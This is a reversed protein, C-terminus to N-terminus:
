RDHSVIVDRLKTIELKSDFSAFLVANIPKTLAKAFGLELRLSSFNLPSRHNGDSVGDPSLNFIYLNYGKEFHEMTMGNTDDTNFYNLASMTNAYTRAYYKDDYNPTFIQGPILDGDRYLAIKNLSFHQFNYPNLGINGNFADHTVLGIVLMKPCQTMYLRDKIHSQTGSTITFTSVETHQIPYLANMKEMGVNHASIVSADVKVRRVWLVCKTFEIKIDSKGKLQQVAFATKAPLLKFTLDTQPLMYRAQRTMDLFLPGYMHWEKHDNTAASRFKFGENDANNMKGPEDENWGVVQLHTKKASPHFQLLTSLYGNYPYAHQGGEIQKDGISLFVDQFLSSIPQNVLAVSDAATVESKTGGAIKSLKVRIELNIDNM